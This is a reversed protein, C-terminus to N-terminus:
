KILKFIISNYKGKNIVKPPAKKNKSKIKKKIMKVTVNMGPKWDIKCGTVKNLDPGEFSFPDKSDVEIKLEYTKTLVKNTFYPNEAFHFELTYGYPKQDFYKVKIDQLYSLIPDDVEAVLESTMRVAQLTELWFNKIGKNDKSDSPVSQEPETNEKNELEDLTWKGEEDTPEHEGTVIQRRKEFIPEYLKNYKCELQHLEEYFKAELETFKLQENKLANMRKREEKTMQEGIELEKIDKGSGSEKAFEAVQRKLQEITMTAKGGSIKKSMKASELSTKDVQFM